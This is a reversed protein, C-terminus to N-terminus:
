IAGADEIMRPIEESMRVLVDEVRGDIQADIESRSMGDIRMALDQQQRLEGRLVRPSVTLSRAQMTYALQNGRRDVIEGRRAPDVCVRARQAQAKAALEPGWVAQVWARRGVLVVAIILFVSLVVRMRAVMLSKQDQPQRRPKQQPRAQPQPPSVRRPRTVRA